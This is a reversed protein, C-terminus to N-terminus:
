PTLQQLLFTIRSLMACSNRQFHFLSLLHETTVYYKKVGQVNSKNFGQLENINQM